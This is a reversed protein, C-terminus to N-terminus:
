QGSLMRFLDETGPDAVDDVYVRSEEGNGRQTHRKKSPGRDVHDEDADRKQTQRRKEAPTTVLKRYRTQETITVSPPIRDSSASPSSGFIDDFVNFQATASETQSTNGSDPVYPPSGASYTPSQSSTSSLYPPSYSAVQYPPSHSPSGSPTLQRLYPPSSAAPPSNQRHASSNSSAGSMATSRTARASPRAAAPRNRSCPAAVTGSLGPRGISQRGAYGYGSGGLSTSTSSPWRDIPSHMRSMHVKTERRARQLVSLDGARAVRRDRGAEIVPLKTMRVRRQKKAQEIEAVKTRVRQAIEKAREEDQAKMRAYLDRWCDVPEARGKEIDEPLARLEKFTRLCHAMWLSQNDDVIHPNFHEIMTLQEPTCVALVDAVLFQPVIGLRRIRDVKAMLARKCLEKLSLVRPKGSTRSREM